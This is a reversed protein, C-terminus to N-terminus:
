DILDMTELNLAISRKIDFPSFRNSVKIGLYFEPHQKQEQIRKLVAAIEEERLLSEPCLSRPPAHRDKWAGYPSEPDSTCGSFVFGRLLNHQLAKELHELPGHTSHKEITSRGWNLVLSIDGVAQLAEIEEELALFGKDAPHDPVFADCHELNLALSSWNMKKIEALSRKLAEKSGQHSSVSNQPASYLNISRVMPRGFAQELKATYVQVRQILDIAIKRDPESTSALGAKPIRSAMEMVAPLSTLHLTWHNPINKALWEIPYIERDKSFPIEIGRVRPDAALAQFYATEFAEEWTHLVQSTAYASIFYHYSM